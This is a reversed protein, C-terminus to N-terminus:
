IRGKRMGTKIICISFLMSPTSPIGVRPWIMTPASSVMSSHRDGQTWYYNTGTKIESKSIRAEFVLWCRWSSCRTDWSWGRSVTLWINRSYGAEKWKIQVRDQSVSSFTATFTLWNKCCTIGYCTLKYQMRVQVLNEKLTARKRKFLIALRSRNKNIKTSKM